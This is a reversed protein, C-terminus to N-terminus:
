GHRLAKRIALVLPLTPLWQLRKGEASIRFRPIM